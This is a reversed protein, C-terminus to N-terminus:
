ADLMVHVFGDREECTVREPCGQLLSDGEKRIFWGTRTGVPNQSEAFFIVEKNDWDKPVCVQMDLLGVKTVEADMVFGKTFLKFLGSWIM